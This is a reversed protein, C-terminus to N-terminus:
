PNRTHTYCYRCPRHSACPFRISSRNSRPLSLYCSEPALDPLLCNLTIEALPILKTWYSLPFKPSATGLTSIFYKKWTRISREALNARHTGTSFYQFTVKKVATLLKELTPPSKLIWASLLRIWESVRGTCSLRTVHTLTPLLANNLCSYQWQFM